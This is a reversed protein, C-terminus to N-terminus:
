WVLEEIIEAKGNEIVIPLLLEQRGGQNRIVPTAHGARIQIKL